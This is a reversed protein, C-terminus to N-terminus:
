KGGSLANGQRGSIKVPRKVNTHSPVWNVRMKLAVRPNPPFQRSNKLVPNMLQSAMSVNKPLMTKQWSAVLFGSLAVTSSPTAASKGALHGLAQRLPEARNGVALLLREALTSGEAVRARFKDVKADGLIRLAEGPEHKMWGAAAVEALLRQLRDARSLSAMQALDLLLSSDWMLCPVADAHGAIVLTLGAVPQCRAADKVEDRLVDALEPVTSVLLGAPGTQETWEPSMLQSLSSAGGEIWLRLAYEDLTVVIRDPTRARRALDPSGTVFVQTLPIEAVAGRLSQPVIGDKAAGAWLTRLSDDGLAPPTTLTKILALWLTRIEDQTAKILPFAGELKDFAPQCQEWNPIKALAPERHRAVIASLRVTEDGVLVTGHMLLFWPLPHLVDIKSYRTDSHGFTLRAVFEGRGIRAVFRATLRANPIGSLRPLFTWGKPLTLDSPNLYSSSASRNVSQRYHDRWHSLWGNLGDHMGVGVVGDPFDCIGLAALLAEDGGHTEFDVLVNRNASADDPSVLAGPLLVAGALVWEGDRRRVRIRYSNQTIFKHRVTEPAARLM